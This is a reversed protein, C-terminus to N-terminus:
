GGEGAAPGGLREIARDLEDASAQLADRTEGQARVRRLGGAATEYSEIAERRLEDAQRDLQDASTGLKTALQGQVRESLGRFMSATQAMSASRRALVDGLVRASGASSLTGDVGGSNARRATSGAKQLASRADNVANMADSQHLASVTDANAALERALTAAAERADSAEDAALAAQKTVSERAESLIGLQSDIAQVRVGLAEIQPRLVARQADLMSSEAELKDARRGVDRASQITEAAEIPGESLARDRLASEEARITRVQGELAEIQAGLDGMRGELTQQEARAGALQEQFRSAEEDIARLEAASSYSGLAEATQQATVRATERSVMETLTAGIQQEIAALRALPKRALGAEAEASILAAIAQQAPTGGSVPGLKGTTARYGQEAFDDSVPPVSGPSIARMQISADSIAQAAPDQEDCGAAMGAILALLALRSAVARGRSGETLGAKSTAM